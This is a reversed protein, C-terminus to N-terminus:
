KSASADQDPADSIQLLHDLMLAAAPLLTQRSKVGVIIERRAWPEDLPVIVTNPIQYIRASTDPLVGVGLGANILLCMADYGSVATRLKLTANLEGAVKTLQYNLQTGPYLSVHEYPLTDRFSVSERSALVHWAPVLVVLRDTKFPFTEISSDHPLRTFIGIEAIGEALGRAIALSNQEELNLRIHPYRLSFTKIADPVFQTIASINALINVSGKHGQAFEQMQTQIDDLNNLLKRSMYLLSMGAPTAEIGKNSRRLLATGFAQELDSLRRSIAAAVIHEREAARAITGEEVVRVFLKLSLLDLKMGPMM